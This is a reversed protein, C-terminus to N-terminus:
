LLQNIPIFYWRGLLSAVPAKGQGKSIGRASLINGVDRMIASNKLDNERGIGTMMQAINFYFVGDKIGPHSRGYCQTAIWNLIQDELPNAITFHEARNSAGKIEWFDVSGSKYLHWAEAWLQDREAELGAFDLKKGAEIIPYRRYGAPDTQLFEAKDGCGYFTFRRQFEEVSAGYPPRFSDKTQTIMAKLNRSEMRTFSDLEDFGVVLSSHLLMHLDKHNHDGYLTISNEAGNAGFIIGPFSTKGIGQPGIVILIYDIKTGPKDLRACAAVLWKTSVERTFDDNSVGWLRSMFTALRQVGDWRLGRVYDLMPSRAHRKALAQICSFVTRFTVKDFGLNYQFYNALDMETVDPQAVADGVMVRNSDLNRWVKPFAPHEEMLRMINATHQHVIVQDKAGKKFALRYKSVLSSPSQVLSDVAITPLSNWNEIAKSGWRVLADDIKDGTEIITVKIGLNEAARAFTGYANCIDYRHVDGDPVIVLQTANRLEFLKRIWPHVSGTGAPDRWMQCGGIGFAPLGLFKMLAAAKKEGEACVLVESPPLQHLAPHVYPMTPPLGCGMLQEGSPQDYRPGRYFEPYKLRTRWMLLLGTDDVIPRGDLNFYPIVYGATAGKRLNLLPHTYAQIEDPSLGSRALDEAAFAENERASGQMFDSQPTHPVKFQRFQTISSEAM